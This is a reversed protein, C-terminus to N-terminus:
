FSAWSELLGAGLEQEVLYRIEPFHMRGSYLLGGIALSPTRTVGAARLAAVEDEVAQSMRGTELCSEFQEAALELAPSAALEIALSQDFNVRRQHDFAHQYYEWFAGQEGACLAAEHMLRAKDQGPQEEDFIARYVVRVEDPYAKLIGAIEGSMNRCLISQLHCFFVLAVKADTSGKHHKGALLPGMAIPRPGGSPEGIQEGDVPGSFRPSLEQALRHRQQANRQQGAPIGRAERDHVEKLAEDYLAELTDLGASRPVDHGNILLGPVDSVRMRRWYFHNAALVEDHRMWELAEEVRKYNLGAQAAIEPYDKSSPARHLEGYYADMFEFFRGQEFAERGFTQAQNSSLERTETLRYIIQLRTPHRAALEILHRHIRGSLTNTLNLFFEITVPADSPGLRPHQAPAVHELIHVHPMAAQDLAPKSDGQAQQAHAVSAGPLLVFLVWLLRHMGGAYRTGIRAAFGPSTCNAAAPSSPM